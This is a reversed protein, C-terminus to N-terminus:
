RNRGELDDNNISRRNKKIGGNLKGFKYNMSASFSRWFEQNSSYQSFNNGWAMNEAKRYKSFPNSATASFSFKDKILDKNVSFSSGVFTGTKGQISIDKGNYNVDASVNWGKDFKYSNSMFASPMLGENKIFVGNIMGEVWGYGLRTGASINWEKTLPYNINFNGGVLRARGTNAYSSLIVNTEANLSTIPMVLKRFLMYQVNININGKKFRSYGLEFSKNTMPQLDPNGSREFSPNSRDVFPNLRYIGPRQLRSTFGFTLNSTENLKRKVSVSPIFNFYNQNLNKNASIFNAKVVTQELRLGAKFGWSKYEFQYTNYAALINQTNDFNNTRLADAEFQQTGPNLSLFEFESKNTRLIAKVGAEINLKKVPHVYDVQYTQESPKETNNQRFDPTSFNLPDTLTSSYSDDSIYQSFKYSVTFLRNKDAKFGLQYNLSADTGAGTGDSINSLNYRQLLENTGNLVSSQSQLGNQSNGNINVQASVLNLSDIEYSLESGFYGNEGNSKRFGNQVLRTANDGLSTRDNLSSTLPAKDASAGGYASIGWKGNKGTFSSGIGPGWNPVRANMNISGNYGNDVKKNTIINIIGALGEGDYKAPPTTIVEIKQITSAPMSKLIDKANREMMSSPRGNILIKFNADGKLKVNDQADVSLLPVKRIMELVSKAKSEPDAQLDYSLRDIEQKIIPKEATIVVEKLNTSGSKLYITGLDKITLTSDSLDVPLSKASYGVYIVNLLYKGTKLKSLTFTGDQGTLETKVAQNQETKLSLTVYELPKKTASDAVTGQITLQQAEASLSFWVLLLLLARM